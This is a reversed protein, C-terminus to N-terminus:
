SAPGKTIKGAKAKPMPRPLTPMGDPHREEIIEDIVTLANSAGEHDDVRVLSINLRIMELTQHAAKLDKEVRGNDARLTAVQARLRHSLEEFHQKQFIKGLKSAKKSM